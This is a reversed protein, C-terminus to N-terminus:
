RQIDEEKELAKATGIIDLSSDGKSMFSYATMVRGDSLAFEIELLKNNDKPTLNLIIANCWNDYDGYEFRAVEYKKVDKYSKSIPKEFKEIKYKM